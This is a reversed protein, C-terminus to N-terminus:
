FLIFCARNINIYERIQLTLLSKNQLLFTVALVKTTDFIIINTMMLSSQRANTTIQLSFLIDYPLCSVANKNENLFFNLQNIM